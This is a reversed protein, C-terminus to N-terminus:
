RLLIALGRRFRCTLTILNAADDRVIRPRTVKDPLVFSWVPDPNVVSGYQWVAYAGSMEPTGEGCLEVCPGGTEPLTLGGTTVFPAPVGEAIPLAFTFGDSVTTSAGSPLIFRHGNADLTGSVLNFTQAYDDPVATRGGGAAVYGRVRFDMDTGLLLRGGTKAFTVTNIFNSVGEEQVYHQIRDGSFRLPVNGLMTGRKLLVDGQVDLLCKASAVYFGGQAITLKGTVCLVDSGLLKLTNQCIQGDTPRCQPVDYVLEEISDRMQLDNAASATNDTGVFAIKQRGGLRGGQQTVGSQCGNTILLGDSPLVLTGSALTLRAGEVNRGGRLVLPGDGVCTVKGGDPKAVVVNGLTNAPANTLVIRSDETGGLIVKVTGNVEGAKKIGCKTLCEVVDGKVLLNGAGSIPTECLYLNGNVVNTSTGTDFCLSAKDYGDAEVDNFTWPGGAFRCIRYGVSMLRPPVFEADAALRFGNQLVEGKDSYNCVDVASMDLVGGNVFLGPANGSTSGFLAYGSEATVRLRVGSPKAVTMGSIRPVRNGGTAPCYSGTIVSTQGFQIEGEEEGDFVLGDLGTLINGAISLKRPLHVFHGNSTLKANQGGGEWQLCSSVTLDRGLALPCNFTNEVVLRDLVGGFDADVELATQSSLSRLIAMDAPGPATTAEQGTSQVTWNAPTSFRRDTGGKWVYIEGEWIPEITWNWTLTMGRHGDTLRITAETGPFTQSGGDSFTLTYGTCHAIFTELENTWASPCSFTFDTGIKGDCAGYDPTPHGYADPSGAVTMPCLTASPGPTFDGTGDNYYPTGTLEDVMCIVGDVNAPRLNLTPTGAEDFMRFSYVTIASRQFPKGSTSTHNIGFLEYTQSASAAAGGELVLKGDVYYAGTPHETTAVHIILTHRGATVPESNSNWGNGLRWKGDFTAVAVGGDGFGGFMKDALGGSANHPDVVLELIQGAAPKIGVNIGQSGSSKLYQLYDVEAQVVGGCLCLAAGCLFGLLRNM